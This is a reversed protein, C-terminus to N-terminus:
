ASAHHHENNRPISTDISALVKHTRSCFVFYIGPTQVALQKIRELSPDLGEVAELWLANKDIAGSFIDYKPANMSVEEPLIPVTADTFVPTL